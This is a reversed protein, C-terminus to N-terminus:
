VYELAQLEAWSKRGQAVKCFEPVTVGRSCVMRKSKHEKVSCMVLGDESYNPTDVVFFYMKCLYTNSM